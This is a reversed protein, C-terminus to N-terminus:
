HVALRCCDNNTCSNAANRSCGPQCALTEAHRHEFLVFLRTSAGVLDDPIAVPEIYSGGEEQHRFDPFLREGRQSFLEAVVQLKHADVRRVLHM